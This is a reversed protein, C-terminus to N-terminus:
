LAVYNWCSIVFERSQHVAGLLNVLDVDFKALFSLVKIISLVSAKTKEDFVTAM